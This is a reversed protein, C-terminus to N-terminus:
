EEIVWLVLAVMAVGLLVVVAIVPAIVGADM